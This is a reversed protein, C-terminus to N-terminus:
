SLSKQLISTSTKIEIFEEKVTDLRMAQDSEVVYEEVFGLKEYLDKAPTNDSEVKLFISEYGWKKGVLELEACLMIAIGKRRADPSVCLNSFCLVADYDLSLLESAIEKASSKQYQRRQKPGLNAVANKLINESEDSILINKSRKDLVLEQMGVLGMIKDNSDRATLICNKRLPKGMREGYKDTLDHALELILTEKAAASVKISDDTQQRPSGLWFSNLVFSAAEQISPEDGSSSIIKFGSGAAKTDSSQRVITKVNHQIDFRSVRSKIIHRQIIPLIWSTSMHTSSVFILTFCLIHGKMM